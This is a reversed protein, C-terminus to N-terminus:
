HPIKKARAGKVRCEEVINYIAIEMSILASDGSTISEMEDLRLVECPDSDGLTFSWQRLYAELKEEFLQLDIRVIM